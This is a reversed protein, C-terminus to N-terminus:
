DLNALFYKVRSCGGYGEEGKGLFTLGERDILVSALVELSYIFTLPSSDNGDFFAFM